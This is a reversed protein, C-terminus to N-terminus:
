KALLLPEYSKRHAFALFLIGVFLPIVVPLGEPMLFANVLLINVAIPFILVVALSVFRGTVFALGCLLELFKVVPMLYSVAALGNMFTKANGTLDPPPALNLFYTTSAFLFLLGVLTRVIIVAIKMAKYKEEPRRFYSPM